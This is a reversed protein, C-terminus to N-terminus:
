TTRSMCAPCVRVPSVTRAMRGPKPRGVRYKLTTSPWGTTRSTLRPVGTVHSRNWFIQDCCLRARNEQRHLSVALFTILSRRAGRRRRGAAHARCARGSPPRPPSPPREGANSVTQRCRGRHASWSSARPQGGAPSPGRARTRTKGTSGKQTTKRKPQSVRKGAYTTGGYPVPRPEPLSGPTRRAEHASPKPHDLEIVHGLRHGRLQHCQGQSSV